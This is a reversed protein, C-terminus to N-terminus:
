GVAFHLRDPHQAGRAAGRDLGAGGGDVPELSQQHCGGLLDRGRQPAKAGSRQDVGAGPQPGIEAAALGGGRGLPRKADESRAPASRTAAPSLAPSRSRLSADKAASQPALGM